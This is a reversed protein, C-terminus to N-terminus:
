LLAMWHTTESVPRSPEYEAGVYGSYNLSRLSAFCTKFDIHGTGPEHRGPADAIQVHGIHAIANRLDRQIDRQDMAAHYFDYQLVLRKDAITDIVELAHDPSAILLGPFDRCNLAELSLKVDLASFRDLARRVNRILQALCRERTEDAPIRAPGINVVKARLAKANEFAEDLAAIFETERGPIGSHGPGKSVFDGIGLNILAVELGAAEIFPAFRRAEGAALFQFELASFGAQLAGAVVDRIERGRFLFNASASVPLRM